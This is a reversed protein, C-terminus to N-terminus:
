RTEWDRDLTTSYSVAGVTIRSGNGNASNIGSLNALQITHVESGNVELVLSGTYANYFAKAPYDSGGDAAIADNIEGNIITFASFIGRRNGSVTYDGNSNFTAMSGIGSGVANSYGSIGNSSGFSLKAGTGTENADIDSLVQPTAATETSAGLQFDLQSVYGRDM